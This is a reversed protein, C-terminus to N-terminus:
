HVTMWRNTVRSDAFVGRNPGFAWRLDWAENVPAKQTIVWDGDGQLNTVLDAAPVIEYRQMMAADVPPNLHPILQSLNTPPQGNNAKAYKEFASFFRGLVKLEANGRVNSMARSFEDPTELTLPSIYDPWDQDNLLQLEPIKEAPHEELWQKLRAVREAWLAQKYALVNTGAPNNGTMSQTLQQAQQRLLGIEGRLKLLELRQENSIAPTRNARAILAALRQNNLTLRAIQDNEQQVADDLNRVAAAAQHQLVLPTLVCAAALASIMGAQLKTMTIMKMFTLLTGGGGASGALAAGTLTAALGAPAMQVAQVSLVTGLAVTTRLGRRALFGRLKELARDVRKRAADESLGLKQGIDAFSRNEFYRLLIVARDTEKLEHMVRDLEPRLPEWDADSAPPPFLEQMAQAEQERMQRRHERRVANAAAFHTSTYLWGTLLPRRALVAAKRALDTFVTQAVDQALHVDGHVQRLAASYVLDLHRRVLEAFAEEAKAEAYSRLLEGDSKMKM